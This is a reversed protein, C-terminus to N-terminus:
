NSFDGYLRAKKAVELVQPAYMQSFKVAASGDTFGYAKLEQTFQDVDSRARKLTNEDVPAKRNRGLNNEVQAKLLSKEFLTNPMVSALLASTPQQPLTNTASPQPNQPVSAGVNGFAVTKRSQLQQELQAIRENKAILEKQLANNKQFADEFQAADQARQASDKLTQTSAAVFFDKVASAIDNQPQLTLATLYEALLGFKEKPNLGMEKMTPVLKTVLPKLTNTMSELEGKQKEAMYHSVLQALQQNQNNIAAFTAKADEPINEPIPVNTSLNNLHEPQGLAKSTQAMDIENLINQIIELLAPDDGLQSALNRLEANTGQAAEGPKANTQAQAANGQTQTNAQQQTDPASSAGVNFSAPPSGASTGAALNQM